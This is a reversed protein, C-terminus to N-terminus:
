SRGISDTFRVWAAEDYGNEGPAKPRGAKLWAAHVGYRNHVRKWPRKFYEAEEDEHLLGLARLIIAWREVGRFLRRHIEADSEGPM